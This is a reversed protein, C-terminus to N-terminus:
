FILSLCTLAGECKMFESMELTVVEFGAQRILELTKPYGSPLIVVDNVTLTNAAYSEQNDIILVDIGLERWLPHGAYTRTALMMNRGLYTIYSKLHVISPSAIGIVEIGLFETMQDIGGWNTRQTVGCIIREESHIVDGGEVTAPETARQVELYDKLVSEITEVEGRRPEAGMRSILARGDHIVATDEVFCSDPFADQPPLQTIELGIDELTKTYSKHQELAKDLNITSRQPHSTICDCFSKSPPRIIARRPKSM